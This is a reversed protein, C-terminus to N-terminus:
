EQKTVHATTHQQFTLQKVLKFEQGSFTTNVPCLHNQLASPRSVHSLHFVAWLIQHFSALCLHLHCPVLHPIQLPGVRTTLQVYMLLVFYMVATCHEGQQQPFPTFVSGRNTYLMQTTEWDSNCIM